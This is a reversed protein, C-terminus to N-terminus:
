PKTIATKINAITDYMFAKKDLNKIFAHFRSEGVICFQNTIFNDNIWGIRVTYSVYNTINYKSMDAVLINGSAVNRHKIVRVNGLQFTGTQAAMPFLYEGLTNKASYIQSYFDTPNMVAVNPSYMEEDVFNHTNEIYTIGAGVADMFNPTPIQTAMAGATFASAAVTAGTPNAGTGDGFLIGGEKKLDHKRRLFDTAISQLNAIDTMAEETIVEYAAVKKPQVYRTEFKHDIQPKTGAEATFVADGEKPITDTYSYVPSTTNIMTCLDIVTPQRLNANTPPAVMSGLVGPAATPWTISGTSMSGVAKNAIQRDGVMVGGNPSVKIELDIFGSGNRRLKVIEDHNDSIYKGIADEVTEIGFQNQVEIAAKVKLGMEELAKDQAKKADELSTQLQDFRKSANEDADRAIELALHEQYAGLEKAQESASLNDFKTETIGNNSLYEKFSLKNKNSM